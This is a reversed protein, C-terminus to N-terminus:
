KRCTKLFERLIPKGDLLNSDKPDQFEPHWQVAYVFTDGTYKIAEVVNDVPSTAEIKLDRGLKKISQHHVTNVKATRMVNSPYLETLLSNNEFRIEHFNQDYIEWNRHNLSKPIQTEIDQYLSGGLGVNILQAGRCIGLVPKKQNMFSKMLAIEYADRIEDGNWEPKLPEEGYTRPCVDSGGQLVLGDLPFTLDDIGIPDGERPAPIMYLLIDESMLWHAMSQELYQLTKGKFVPRKPDSHFFCASIGIRLRSM